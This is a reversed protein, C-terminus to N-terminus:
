HEIKILKYGGASSSNLIQALEEQANEKLEPLSFTYTRPSGSKDDIKEVAGDSSYFLSNLYLERQGPPTKNQNGESDNPNDAGGKESPHPPDFTIDNKAFFAATGHEQNQEGEVTINGNVFINKHESIENLAQSEVSLDGDIIVNKDLDNINQSTLTKSGSILEVGSDSFNQIRDKLVGLDDRFQIEYDDYNECLDSKKFPPKLDYEKACINGIFEDAGGGGGKTIKFNNITEGYMIIDSSYPFKGSMEITYKVTEQSQGVKATSIIQRENGDKSISIDIDDLEQFNNLIYEEVISAKNETSNSGTIEEISKYIGAEAYYFAKTSDSRVSEQRASSLVTNMLSVGIISIFVVVVLVNLLVSGKNNLSSTQM